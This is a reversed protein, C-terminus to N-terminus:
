TIISSSGDTSNRLPPPIISVFAEGITDYFPSSRYTGDENLAENVVDWRTCVDKYRDALNFIHNKMISVLTANDFNGADVWAPLQSHWVLNHCHIEKKNKKAWDRYRDADTYTFNNRSTETVEWKMANEPTFSSKHNVDQLDM